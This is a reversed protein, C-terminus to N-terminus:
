GFRYNIIGNPNWCVVSGLDLMPKGSEMIITFESFTLAQPSFLRPSGVPEGREM